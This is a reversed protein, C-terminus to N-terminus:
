SLRGLFVVEIIFLIFTQAVVPGIKDLNSGLSLLFIEAVVPRIYIKLLISAKQELSVAEAQPLACSM